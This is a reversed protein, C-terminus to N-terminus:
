PRLPLGCEQCRGARPRLPLGCGACRRVPRVPRPAAARGDGAPPRGAELRRLREELAQVRLRLERM